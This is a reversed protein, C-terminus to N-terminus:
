PRYVREFTPAFLVQNFKGKRVYVQVVAPVKPDVGVFFVDLTAKLNQLEVTENALGFVYDLDAYLRDVGAVVVNIPSAKNQAHVPVVGGALVIATACCILFGSTRSM